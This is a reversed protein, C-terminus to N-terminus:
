CKNLYFVASLMVYILLFIFLLIQPQMIMTGIISRAVKSRCLGWILLILSAVLGISYFPRVGTGYIIKHYTSLMLFLVIFSIIMFNNITKAKSIIM